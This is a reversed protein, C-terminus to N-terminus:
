HRVHQHPRAPAEVGDGKAGVGVMEERVDPRGGADQDADGEDLQGAPVEEVRDDGERDRRVDDPHGPLDEDLRGVAKEVRVSGSPSRADSSRTSERNRVVPTATWATRDRCAPGTRNTSM